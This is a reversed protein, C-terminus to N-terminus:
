APCPLLRERASRWTEANELTANPSLMAHDFPELHAGSALRRPYDPNALAGRGLSVLDAHGEQLVRAARAPEHMGGNAIVPVGAVARALGTITVGEALQATDLWNRGESAIHIFAVGADRVAAFIAKGDEAGGPWRYEFDNVKTQSLRIGIPFEAGVARRVASVVSAAFRVRNAVPGGYQDTRQNTYTTLFQDILYGNAGHIEVGDFGANRARVAAGAFGELVDDIDGDTMAVPRSFPGSGGYESMKEGRPQVASPGLTKTKHRNGQSLAGAHMLQAFIAGGAAHVADVVPRWAAAQEETALGPQDEYGQSYALDPYIGETVILGFGGIAFAEYYRKMAATALGVPASVRSMPAVVLRNRLTSPGISVTELAAHIPAFAPRTASM